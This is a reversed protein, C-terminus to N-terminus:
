HNAPPYTAEVIGEENLFDLHPQNDSGVYMRVRVRGKADSLQVQAPKDESGMSLRQAGSAGRARADAGQQRLVAKESETANQMKVARDLEESMPIDTPRDWVSLGARRKNGHDNYQLALVQNQRWQDFSLHGLAGYDAAG